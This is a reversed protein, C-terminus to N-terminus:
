ELEDGMEAKLMKKARSLRTYITNVNKGLLRAIEVATYNEYYFLYIVERYDKPLALVVQLVDHSEPPLAM